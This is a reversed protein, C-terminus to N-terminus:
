REYGKSRHRKRDQPRDAEKQGGQQGGIMDYAGQWAISKDAEYKELAEERSVGAKLSANYRQKADKESNFIHYLPDRVDARNPIKDWFTRWHAADDSDRPMLLAFESFDHLQWFGKGTRAMERERRAGLSRENTDSHDTRKQHDLQAQRLLRSAEGMLHPPPSYNTIQVGAVQAAAWYRLKFSEPGFVECKGGWSEKAENVAATISRDSIHGHFTIRDQTVHLSGKYKDHGTEILLTGKHERFKWGDLDPSYTQWVGHLADIEEQTLPPPNKASGPRRIGGL